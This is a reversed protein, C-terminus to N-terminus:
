KQIKNVSEAMYLLDYEDLFASIYFATNDNPSTWVVVNAIESTNSIFIDAPTNEVYASHITTNAKDILWYTETSSPAYSFTIIQGTENTYCVTICGDIDTISIEEYGDPIWSPRYQPLPESESQSGEFHYVFFMEYVEKVWGIFAARAEADVTLWASGSLLLVLAICAVRKIANYLAPHEARRVLKRISQEFKPSFEHQCEESPPLSDLLAQDAAMAAERLMEESIM